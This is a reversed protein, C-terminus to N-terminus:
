EAGEARDFVLMAVSSSLRRGGTGHISSFLLQVFSLLGGCGVTLRIRDAEVGPQRGRSRRSSWEELGTM